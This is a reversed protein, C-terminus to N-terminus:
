KELHESHIYEGKTDFFDIEERTEQYRRRDEYESELQTIEDPTM